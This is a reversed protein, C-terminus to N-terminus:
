NDFKFLALHEMDRQAAVLPNISGDASDSYKAVSPKSNPDPATHTSDGYNLM